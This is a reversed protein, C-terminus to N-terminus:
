SWLLDSQLITKVWQYAEDSLPPIPKQAYDIALDLAAEQYISELVAQLDIVPEIDGTLLPVVFQPLPDQLNFPYLEADPRQDKRSVLVRYDSAVDCDMPMPEGSRLLDIEVLHSQTSLVKQRKTLYQTRGEGSRKNKPSLVEIVTVVRETGVERIELYRESTEELVPLRVKVPPVLISTATSSNPIKTAQGGRLVSVDPIGVLVAESYVRKEVAARYKPTIQSNLSRAMQVILWSHVESWLTPNELYPNMGPFNPAM